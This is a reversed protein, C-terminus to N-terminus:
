FFCSVQLPPSQHIELTLRSVLVYLAPPDPASLTRSEFVRKEVEILETYLESPFVCALLGLTKDRLACFLAFFDRKAYEYLLTSFFATFIFM